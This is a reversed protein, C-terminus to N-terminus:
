IEGSRRGIKEVELQLHEYPRIAIIQYDPRIIKGSDLLFLEREDTLMDANEDTFTEGDGGFLCIGDKESIDLGNRLIYHMQNGDIQIQYAGDVKINFMYALREGYMEAQTKGGAAWVIGHFLAAPGYTDYTGGEADKEIIRKSLYIRQLRNRKLRM